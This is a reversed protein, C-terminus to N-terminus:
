NDPSCTASVWKGTFSSNMSMSQGNPGSMAFQISGSATQSDSATISVNVQGTATRGNGDSIQCATGNIQMSSGNSTLTNWTCKMDKDQFPMKTLDAAKVCNRYTRTQPQGGLRGRFLEELKARQDPPMQSLRAQMEPPITANVSSTM